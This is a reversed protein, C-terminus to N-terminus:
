RIIVVKFSNKELRGAEDNYLFLQYVGAPLRTLDVPVKMDYSIGSFFETSILRGDSAYVRM